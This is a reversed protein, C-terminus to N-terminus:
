IMYSEQFIINYKCMKKCNLFIYKSVNEHLMTSLLAHHKLSFLVKASLRLLKWLMLFIITSKKLNYNSEHINTQQFFIHHKSSFLVKNCKCLVKAAVLADHICQM